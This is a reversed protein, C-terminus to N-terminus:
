NSLGLIATVGSSIIWDTVFFILAAIVAVVAVMASSVLTERRTPWVVRQAESRVERIFKAPNMAMIAGQAKLLFNGFVFVCV